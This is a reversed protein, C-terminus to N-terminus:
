VSQYFLSNFLEESKALEIRAQQKQSRNDLSIGIFQNQMELSPVGFLYNEKYYRVNIIDM